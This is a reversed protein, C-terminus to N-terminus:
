LELTNRAGPITQEPVRSYPGVGRDWNIRLAIGLKKGPVPIELEAEDCVPPPLCFGQYTVADRRRPLTDIRCCRLLNEVLHCLLHPSLRDARFGLCGETAVNLAQEAAFGVYQVLFFEFQAGLRSRHDTKM